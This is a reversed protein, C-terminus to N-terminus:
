NAKQAVKQKAARYMDALVFGALSSVIIFVWDRKSILKLPNTM